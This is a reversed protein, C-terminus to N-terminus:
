ENLMFKFSAITSPTKIAQERTPTRRAHIQLHYRQQMDPETATTRMSEQPAMDIKMLSSFILSLEAEYWAM